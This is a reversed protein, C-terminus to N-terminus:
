GRVFMLLQLSTFQRKTCAAMAKNQTNWKIVSDVTWKDYSLSIRSQFLATIPKTVPGFWDMLIVREPILKVSPSKYCNRMQSGPKIRFQTGTPERYMEILIGPQHKDGTGIFSFVLLTEVCKQIPQLDSFSLHRSPPPYNCLSKGLGRLRDSWPSQSM